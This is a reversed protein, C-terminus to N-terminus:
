PENALSEAKRQRIHRMKIKAEAMWEGMNVANEDMLRAAMEKIKDRRLLYGEWDDMVRAVTDLETEGEEMMWAAERPLYTYSALTSENTVLPTAVILSAPITSSAINRFYGSTAFAPLIAFSQSLVRYFAPFMLNTHFFVNNQLAEPVAPREGFGVLHLLIPEKLTARREGTGLYAKRQSEQRESSMMTAMQRLTGAYTRRSPSFSGQIALSVGDERRVQSQPVPFIPPFIRVPVPAELETKM